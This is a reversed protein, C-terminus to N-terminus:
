TNVFHAEFLRFLGRKNTEFTKFCGSKVNVDLGVVIISAYQNGIQRSLSFFHFFFIWCLWRVLTDDGGIM